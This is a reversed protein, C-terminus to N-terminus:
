PQQSTIQWKDASAKLAPCAQLVAWPGSRGVLVSGLPGKSPGRPNGPSNTQFATGPGDASLKNLPADIRLTHSHLYWAVLPVQFKETSIAGCNLVFDRGGALKIAEPLEFRRNHESHLVVGLHKLRQVRVDIGRSWVLAPLAVFAILTVIPVLKLNVRRAGVRLVVLASGAGYGGIIALLSTGLMMYRPNGAFGAETMVAVLGIWASGVLLVALPAFRRRWAAWLAVLAGFEIVPKVSSPLM